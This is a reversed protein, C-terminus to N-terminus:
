LVNMLSIGGSVVGVLELLGIRGVEVTSFCPKQIPQASISESRKLVAFASGMIM